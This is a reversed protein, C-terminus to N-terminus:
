PCSVNPLVDLPNVLIELDSALPEAIDTVGLSGGIVNVLIPNYESGNRAWVCLSDGSASTSIASAPLATSIAEAALRIDARLSQIEGSGEPPMTPSEELRDILAELLEPGFSAPDDVLGLVAGDVLLEYTDPALDSSASGDPDLLRAAAVGAKSSAVVEGPSPAQVGVAVEVTSLTVQPDPLWIFFGPMFRGTPQLVGIAEELKVVANRTSRAFGDDAEGEMLGAEILLGELQLVDLGTSGWELSRFFPKDTHAALTTIGDVELVPDWSVVTVGERVQVGTVIGSIDPFRLYAPESFSLEVVVSRQDRTKRETPLTLVAEVPTELQALRDTTSSLVWVLGMSPAVLIAVVFFLSAARWWPNARLRDAALPGGSGSVARSIVTM